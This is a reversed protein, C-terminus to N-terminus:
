ENGADEERKRAIKRPMRKKHKKNFDQLAESISKWLIWNNRSVIEQFEEYVSREVEHHIPVRIGESGRRTITRRGM